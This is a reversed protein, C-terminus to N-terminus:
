KNIKIKDALVKVMEGDMNFEWTGSKIGNKYNGKAYVEGKEDYIIAPGHIVGNRYTFNETEKGSDRYRIRKGHLKGKLYNAVETKKGNKYYTIVQGDLTGDKYNEESLLTKGDNFYYIWKGIRKKGKMKGQSKLIGNKSFFQVEALDSNQTFQKIVIPHKEGTVAYYKFVGIEKGHSFQGKYRINKNSYLKMWEGHRKNNADYQNYEKQAFLLTTTLVFLALLNSKKSM